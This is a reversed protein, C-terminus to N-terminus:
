CTSAAITAMTSSQCRSPLRALGCACPPPVCHDRAHCTADLVLFRRTYTVAPRLAVPRARHWAFRELAPAVELYGTRLEHFLHSAEGASGVDTRYDLNSANFKPRTEGTVQVDSDQSGAPMPEDSSGVGQAQSSQSKAM